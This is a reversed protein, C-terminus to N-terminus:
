QKSNCICIEQMIRCVNQVSNFEPSLALWKMVSQFHNSSYSIITNASYCSANKQQFSKPLNLNKLATLTRKVITLCCLGCDTVGVDSWTDERVRCLFLGKKNRTSRAFSFWYDYLCNLNFSKKDTWIMNQLDPHEKFIMASWQFLAEKYHKHLYLKGM